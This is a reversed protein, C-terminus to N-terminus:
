TAWCTMWWSRRARGAWRHFRGDPLACEFQAEVVAPECGGFWGRARRLELVPEVGAPMALHGIEFAIGQLANVRLPHQGSRPAHDRQGGAVSLDLTGFGANRNGRSRDGTELRRDGIKANRVGCEANRTGAEDGAVGSELIVM